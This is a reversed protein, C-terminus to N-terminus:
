AKQVLSMYKVQIAPLTNHGGIRTEYNYSGEVTGWFQVIDKEDINSAQAADLDLKVNDDWIGYDGATVEVLMSSTGTAADYQFVKARYTVIKGKLADPDKNLEDYPISVAQAKLSGEDLVRTITLDQHGSLYGDATADLSVTTDGIPLPGVDFVFHGAHDATISPNDFESLTVTAGAITTGEIRAHDSSTTLASTVDFLIPPEETTVPAVGKVFTKPSLAAGAIAAVFFLFAISGIGLTVVRVNKRQLSLSWLFFPVPWFLLWILLQFV